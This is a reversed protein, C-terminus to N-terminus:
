QARPSQAPAFVHAVPRIARAHLVQDFLALPLHARGLRRRAVREGEVVIELAEFTLAGLSRARGTGVGGDLDHGALDHGALGHGALGHGALHHGALHHGALYHGARAPAPGTRAPGHRVQAVAL